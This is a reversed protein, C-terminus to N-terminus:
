RTSTQNKNKEITAQAKPTVNFFGNDLGLDCVNIRINEELLKITNAREPPNKTWKLENKNTTHPPSGIETQDLEM